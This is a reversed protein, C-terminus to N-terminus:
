EHTVQFQDSSKVSVPPKKSQPNSFLLYASFLTLPIVLAMHPIKIIRVCEEGNVLTVRIANDDNNRRGFDNNPGVVLGFTPGSAFLVGKATGTWDTSDFVDSEQTAIGRIWLATFLCAMTLLAVGMIRRGSCFFERM